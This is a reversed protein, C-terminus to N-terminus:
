KTDKNKLLGELLTVKERESTLLREYLEVIKEIPSLQYYIVANVSSDYNNHINNMHNIVAEENFNEIAEVSVEMADAIMKLKAEDITASKEIKSLTSQHMGMKAALIDQKIGKLTRIREIKRGIHPKAATKPPM